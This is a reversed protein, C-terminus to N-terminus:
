QKFLVKASKKRKPLVLSYKQVEDYKCKLKKVMRNVTSVSMGLEDAQQAVTWWKVRTRMILEEEKSLLAIDIFEELIYKDWIVQKAM